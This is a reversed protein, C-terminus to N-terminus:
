RPIGPWDLMVAEFWRDLRQQMAAVRAPEAAALDRQEGPDDKLNFLMPASPPSLHRVVPDDWIETVTEPNSLLLRSRENDEPRKALAERIPPAYLKWSGDRAAANCRPVPEYRNWQWFREETPAAAEGRLVGLVDTGDLSLAAPAGEGAAALLTPLWNAFHLLEDSVVGAPLGDPWRALAPVRIGGELVSKKSGNWVGNHRRTDGEGKGLFMPGNDSTFVVLTNDALGLRDLAALVRGIGADLHRNMGYITSVARTFRDPQLFPEVDEDPAQLPTHPANYALYLFFPARAHRELFDVAQETFVDTLYRGDGHRFEGGWDLVWDWYEMFGGCFGVFEDFGRACPHYRRDASGNHWKGVMGTAYGASRFLDAVTTEDLKIRDFGLCEVVDVAGTRHPYRGTLLCARAPACMPSASYHQTLRVGEAALRDLHPTQVHPNGYCGLDGWGMDDALIVLVNPRSREPM